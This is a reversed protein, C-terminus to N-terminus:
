AAVAAARAEHARWGATFDNAAIDKNVRFQAETSVYSTTAEHLAIAGDVTPSGTLLTRLRSLEEGAALARDKWYGPYMHDATPDADDTLYVSNVATRLEVFKEAPMTESVTILGNEAAVATGTFNVTATTEDDSVTVTYPSTM